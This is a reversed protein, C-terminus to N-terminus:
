EEKFDGMTLLPGEYLSRVDLIVEDTEFAAIIDIEHNM